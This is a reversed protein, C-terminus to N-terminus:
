AAETLKPAAAGALSEQAGPGCTLHFHAECYSSGDRQPRGCFTIAEGEADGGYPYRCDALKLDALSLHRPDVDACRLKVIETREFAPVRWVADLLHRQRIKRLNPQYAKPLPMTSSEPRDSAAVGMRRARGIVANRSYAAKFRANIAAAIESYTMGQTLYQKLAGSHEPPWSTSQM